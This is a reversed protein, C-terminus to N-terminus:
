GNSAETWNVGSAEPGNGGSAEAQDLHHQIISTVHNGHYWIPGLSVRAADPAVALEDETLPQHDGLLFVPEEPLTSEALPTGDKHLIIPTGPLEKLLRGLGFPAVHVGEEVEEWWMDQHRERLANRIRAATSREDPNLRKIRQGEFRVTVHNTPEKTFVLFVDTDERLGHSLFMAAQVNRCLVDVRGAGGALDDITWLGDPPVTHSVFVFRRM